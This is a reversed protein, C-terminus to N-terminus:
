SSLKQLSERTQQMVKEIEEIKALSDALDVQQERTGVQRSLYSRRLPVRFGRVAFLYRYRDFPLADVSSYEHQVCWDLLGDLLETGVMFDDEALHFHLILVQGQGVSAICAYGKLREGGEVCFHHFSSDSLFHRIGEDDTGVQDFFYSRLFVVLHSLDSARAPRFM